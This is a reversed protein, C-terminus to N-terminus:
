SETARNGEVLALRLYHWALIVTVAAISICFISNFSKWDAISPPLPWLWAMLVCPVNLLLIWFPTWNSPEVDKTAANMRPRSVTCTM